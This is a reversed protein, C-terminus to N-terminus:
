VVREFIMEGGKNIEREDKRQHIKFRNGSICLEFRPGIRTGPYRLTDLCSSVSLVFGDWGMRMMMILLVFAVSPNSRWAVAADSAISRTDTNIVGQRLILVVDEKEM